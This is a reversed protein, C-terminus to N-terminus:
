IAKLDISSKSHTKSAFLDYFYTLFLRGFLLLIEDRIGRLSSFIRYTRMDMSFVNSLVRYKQIDSVVLGKIADLHRNQDLPGGACLFALDAPMHRADLDRKRM